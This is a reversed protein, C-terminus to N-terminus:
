SLIAGCCSFPMHPSELAVRAYCIPQVPYLCAMTYQGMKLTTYATYGTRRDTEFFSRVYSVPTNIFETSNCGDLCSIANMYLCLRYPIRYRGKYVVRIMIDHVKITTLQWMWLYETCIKKQVYMEDISEAGGSPQPLARPGWKPAPPYNKGRFSGGCQRNGV